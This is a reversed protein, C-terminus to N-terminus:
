PMFRSDFKETYAAPSAATEMPPHPIQPNQACVALSGPCDSRPRQAHIQTSALLHGAAESTSLNSRNLNPTLSGVLMSAHIRTPAISDQLHAPRLVVSPLLTSSGSSILGQSRTQPPTWYRSSIGELRPHRLRAWHISNLQVHSTIRTVSMATQTRRSRM